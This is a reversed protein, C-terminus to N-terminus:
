FWYPMPTIADYDELYQVDVEEEEEEEKRLNKAQTVALFMAACIAAKKM